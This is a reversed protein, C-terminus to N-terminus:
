AASATQRLFYQRLLFTANTDNQKFHFRNSLFSFLSPNFVKVYLYSMANVSPEALLFLCLCSFTCAFCRPAPSNHANEARASLLCSRLDLHNCRRLSSANETLEAELCAIVFAFLSSQLVEAGYCQTRAQGQFICPFLPVVSKSPVHASRCKSCAQSQIMVWFFLNAASSPQPMLHM